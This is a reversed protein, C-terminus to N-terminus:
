GSGACLMSIDVLSSFLSHGSDIMGNNQGGAQPKEGWANGFEDFQKFILGHDVM